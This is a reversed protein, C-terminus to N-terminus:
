QECTDYSTYQTYTQRCAENDLHGARFEQTGNWGVFTSAALYVEKAHDVDALWRVVLGHM